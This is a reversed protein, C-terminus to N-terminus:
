LYTMSGRLLAFWGWSNALMHCAACRLSPRLVNDSLSLDSSCRRGQVSASSPCRVALESFFNALTLRAPEAVVLAPSDASAARGDAYM